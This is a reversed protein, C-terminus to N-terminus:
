DMFECDRHSGDCFPKNESCGSRCLAIKNRTTVSQRNASQLTVPGRILLMANERVTIKLPGEGSLAEPKADTFQGDDTFNIMKHSGDCFPKNSSAGCRCLVVDDSQRILTEDAHYIEIDGRCLLPGDARVKITNSKM